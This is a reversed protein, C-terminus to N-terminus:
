GGFPQVGDFRRKIVGVVAFVFDAGLAGNAVIAVVLGAEGAMTKQEGLGAGALCNLRHDSEAFSHRGPAQTVIAPQDEPAVAGVVAAFRGAEVGEAAGHRALAM